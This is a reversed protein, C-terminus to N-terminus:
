RTLSRGIALPTFLQGIIQTMKAPANAAASSVYIVDKDQMEVRQSLFYSDARIMNLRYIIPKPEAGLSTDYRFLYVAAPDATRESPGGIRAMAEALSLASAGFAVQSVKETAGFVLFTRPRNFLEIRDGPLLAINQAGSADIESLRTEASRTGRTVRVIMDNPQNTTGGARAIADLLRERPLGLEFRGPTRIDGSVYFVNFANTKVSVVVQPRQSLGVMGREITREVEGPTKGVVSVRGVYPLQVNGASDVRVTLDTGSASPTFSSQATAGNGRSFLTVGVEYIGISLTDGPGLTDTRGVEDLTALPATAIAHAALRATTTADIDVIQFGTSNDKTEARRIQASTPGAAPLTSCGGLLALGVSIGTMRGLLETYRRRANYNEFSPM